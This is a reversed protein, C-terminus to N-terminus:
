ASALRVGGDSLVVTRGCLEDREGAAILDADDSQVLVRRGDPLDGLVVAVSAADFHLVTYSTVAAPGVADGVVEVRETEAAGVDDYHFGGESPESSWLSVGQKTLIGSVATVIGTSGPDARLVGAMRAIAQLVFNNLPGGAFTMGGTVSVADREDLGMERAQVRVAAPFCSYLERHRVDEIVKGARRLAAAGAARFGPSRHLAGRETLPIMQNSEAISLPFIWRERPVGAAEAAAVSCFVLGAAQDVNWQSNHLKTYPFALMPNGPGADRITEPAVRERRWADPNAAAVESMRSWLEAVARRHADLREGEAFRLANEIMAYQGVPMALGREIELPSIIDVAPRLVTDAERDPLRTMSAEEGARLARQARWRAEGGAVLAVDVRGEAIMQCARAIPTTQLVGIEAMLTEAKGAGFREALWRGPDPHDWFGRAIGVHGARSLLPRSGADHAARELALAMLALPELANAPDEERQMATGVGVLVPTRPDLSSMDSPGTQM